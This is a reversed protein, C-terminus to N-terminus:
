FASIQFESIKRAGDDGVLTPGGRISLINNLGEVLITGGARGGIGRSLGTYENM